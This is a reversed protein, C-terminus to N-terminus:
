DLVRAPPIEPIRWHSLDPTDRIAGTATRIFFTEGSRHDYHHHSNLAPLPPDTITRVEALMSGIGMGRGSLLAATVPLDDGSPRTALRWPYDVLTSPMLM